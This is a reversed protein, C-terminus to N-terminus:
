TLEEATVHREEASSGDQPQVTNLLRYSPSDGFPCIKFLSRPVNLKPIRGVRLWRCSRHDLILEYKHYCCYVHERKGKGWFGRLVRVSFVVWYFAFLAGVSAIGNHVAYAIILLPTDHM